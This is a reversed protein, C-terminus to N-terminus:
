IKTQEFGKKVAIVHGYGFKKYIVGMLNKLDVVGLKAIAGLMAMEPKSGCSKAIKDANLAIGGNHPLKPSNVIVLCGRKSADGRCIVTIRKKAGSLRLKFGNELEEFEEIKSDTKMAEMLINAFEKEGIFELEYSEIV